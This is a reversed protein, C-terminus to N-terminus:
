GFFCPCPVGLTGIRTFCFAASATGTMCHMYAGEIRTFREVPCDPKGAEKKRKGEYTSLFSNGAYLTVFGVKWFKM